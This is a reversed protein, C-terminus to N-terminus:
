LYGRPALRPARSRAGSRRTTRRPLSAPRSPRAVGAAAGVEVSAGPGGAPGLYVMCMDMCVKGAITFRHGRLAVVGRNSLTRPYGDAFGIAVHM